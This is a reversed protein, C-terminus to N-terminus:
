FHLKLHWSHLRILPQVLDLGERNPVDITLVFSDDHEANQRQDSIQIRPERNKSRLSKQSEKFWIWLEHSHKQVLCWWVSQDWLKVIRPGWAQTTQHLRGCTELPPTLTSHWNCSCSTQWEQLIERHFEWYSAQMVCNEGMKSRMKIGCNEGLFSSELGGHGQVWGGFRHGEALDQLDCRQSPSAM